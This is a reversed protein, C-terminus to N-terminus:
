RRDGTGQGGSTGDGKHKPARKGRTQPRRPPTATWQIGQQTPESGVRAGSGGAAGPAGGAPEGATSEATTIPASRQDDEGGGYGIDDLVAELVAEYTTRAERAVAELLWREPLQKLGRHKWSSLTQPSTGMRRAFAAERVGYEDLHAQIIAWLKSM